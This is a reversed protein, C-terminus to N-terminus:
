LQKYFFKFADDSVQKYGKLGRAVFTNSCKINVCPFVRTKTPSLRRTSPVSWPQYVHCKFCQLPLRKGNPRRTHHVREFQEAVVDGETSRLHVIGTFQTTSSHLITPLLTKSQRGTILTGFVFDNVFPVIKQPDLGAETFALTDTLKFRHRTLHQIGATSRVYKKAVGQLMDLSEPVNVVSGCAALVMLSYKRSSIYDQLGKGVVVRFFKNSILILKL